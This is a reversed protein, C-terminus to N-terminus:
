PPAKEYEGDNDHEQGRDERLIGVAALQPARLGPKKAELAMQGDFLDFGQYEAERAM